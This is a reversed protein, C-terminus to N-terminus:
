ESMKNKNEIDYSMLIFLLLLLKKEIFISLKRFTKCQITQEEHPRNTHQKM